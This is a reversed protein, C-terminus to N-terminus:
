PKPFDIHDSQISVILLHEQWENLGKCEDSSSDRLEHPPPHM